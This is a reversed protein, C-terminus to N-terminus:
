ELKPIGGPSIRLIDTLWTRTRGQRATCGELTKARGYCSFLQKKDKSLPLCKAHGTCTHTGGQTERFHMAPSQCTLSHSRMAPSSSIIKINRSAPM